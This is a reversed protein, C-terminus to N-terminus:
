KRIIVFDQYEKLQEEFIEIKRQDILAALEPSEFCFKASGETTDICIEVRFEEPKQGKFIPIRLVFSEPLNSTLKKTMSFAKNGRTDDSQAAEILAKFDFVQYAKLLEEYKDADRFLQKSFRLLKTLEPRSFQKPTNIHFDDLYNTFELKGTIETGYHNEPDMLLQISMVDENVILVANKIDVKQLIYGNNPSEGADIRDRYRKKLFEAPATIHGSIAIKTPPKQELVKGELITLAAGEPSNMLNVDIKNMDFFNFNNYFINRSHQLYRAKGMRVPREM